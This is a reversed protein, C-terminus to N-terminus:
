LGSNYLWNMQTDVELRYGELSQDISDLVRRAWGVAVSSVWSYKMVHFSLDDEGRLKKKMMHRKVHEFLDPWHQQQLVFEYGGSRNVEPMTFRSAQNLKELQELGILVKWPCEYLDVPAELLNVKGGLSLREKAWGDLVPPDSLFYHITGDLFVPDPDCPWDVRFYLAQVPLLAARFQSALHEVVDHSKM